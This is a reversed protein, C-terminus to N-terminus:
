DWGMVRNVEAMDLVDIDGALAAKIGRVARSWLQEDAPRRNWAAIAARAREIHDQAEERSNVDDGYGPTYLIHQILDACEGLIGSLDPKMEGM